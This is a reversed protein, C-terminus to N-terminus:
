LKRFHELYWGRARDAIAKQVQRWTLSSAELEDTTEKQVDAAIWVLFKGICKMDFSLSNDLSVSTAGQQLRATTLVMDVFQNVGAAVEANIQAPAATKINKHKDGKAKFVLNKFNEYGLHESSCPYFVLGEGTGDIGFVGRVWPDVEEISSVWTNISNVKEQLLDGNSLWDIDIEEDRWPLAYVDPIGEVLLSLEKPDTIFTEDELLKAAFVVFSKKPINCVAVGSQIGSGVWEGWIIINKGICAWLSENEKVWKAFGANDSIASLETTRSQPVIKGDAYIQIGANTGHLKVKSRYTVIQSGNLIEPHALACKRINHFSEIETWPIVSM